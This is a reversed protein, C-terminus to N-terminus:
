QSVAPASPIGRGYGGRGIEEIILYEGVETGALDEETFAEELARVVRYKQELSEKLLPYENCYDSLLAGDGGALLQDVFANIVEEERHPTGVAM